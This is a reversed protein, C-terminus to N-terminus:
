DSEAYCINHPHTPKTVSADYQWHSGQYWMRFKGEDAFVRFYICTNGEWPRDCTFVIEQPQPHQLELHVNKLSDILADDVLLERRSGINTPQSTPADDASLQQMGVTWCVILGCLLRVYQTLHTM